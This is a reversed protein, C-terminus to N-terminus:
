CCFDVFVGREVALWEKVVEDGRNCGGEDGMAAGGVADGGNNFGDTCGEVSRGVHM